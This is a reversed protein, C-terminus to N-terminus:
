DKPVVMVWPVKWGAVDLTADTFAKATVPYRRGNAPDYIRLADQGADDTEGPLVLVVHRPTWTSGVYLPTAEGDASLAALRSIASVRGNPLIPLAVYTTGRRGARHTMERALAWPRTGFRSPWPMQLHGARDRNGSTATHMALSERAFRGRAGGTISSGPPPDTGDAIFAAYSPDNLMRAVVLACSGCTTPDPQVLGAALAKEAADVPM